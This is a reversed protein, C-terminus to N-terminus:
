NNGLDGAETQYRAVHKDTSENTDSVFKTFKPFKWGM